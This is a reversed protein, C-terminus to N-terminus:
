KQKQRVEAWNSIGNFAMILMGEVPIAVVFVQSAEPSPHFMIGVSQLAILGLGFWTLRRSNDFKM